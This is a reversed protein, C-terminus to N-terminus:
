DNTELYKINITGCIVKKIKEMDKKDLICINSLQKISIYNGNINYSDLENNLLADLM